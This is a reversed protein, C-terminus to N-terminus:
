GLGLNYYLDQTEPSPEVGLEDELTRMLRAYQRQAAQRQGSKAYAMMLLSHYAENLEDEQLLILLEHIAKEYLKAALYCNVLRVRAENRRLRLAERHPVVWDYDLYELYDGRCCSLARELLSMQEESNEAQSVAAKVLSDFQALDTEVPGDLAYVETGHRIMDPFGCRKLVSRLRYVTTHFKASAKEPDYCDDPWLADIIQDKGIPQGLHALYILLDRARHSRWRVGTIEEDGAFIRVPGMLQLRLVRRCPQPSPEPQTDTLREYAEKAMNRVYREADNRLISLVNIADQGGLEVLIPIIRQKTEPSGQEALPILHRLCRTGVKRLIRQVFGVETGTELGRMLLPYYWHYCTVFNQLDNFRASVTLADETYLHANKIDGKLYYLNAQAQLNYALCKIFGMSRARKEAKKLLDMGKDWSGTRALIHGTITPVSTRILFAQTKAVALAEDAYARAAVWKEQIALTRALFALNLALFSQDSDHERIYEAGQLYLQEAEQVRGLNVLVCALQLYSSPLDETLGMKEKVALARQAVLLAQETEGWDDYIASMVDQFNYGPMIGGPALSIARKFLSLARAPEGLLYTINGLAELIMVLAANDGTGEYEELCQQLVAQSDRFLGAYYLIVSKEIALLLKFRSQSLKSEADFLFRFSEQMAGRGRYIRANLLQCEALGVLDHTKRFLSEAQSAARQAHGLQGRGIEVLAKLLSLQASGRLEEETIAADLWEGVDQWRGHAVAEGGFNILVDTLTTRDGAELLCNVAQSLNGKGIAITGAKKYLSQREHSLKSLLCSRMLPVLHYQGDKKELFQHSVLFRIWDKPVQTGLLQECDDETFHSFVSVRILFEVIERPIGALIEREMYAALVEPLQEQYEFESCQQTLFQVMIPWGDTIAAVRDIQKPELTCSRLNLFEEIEDHSFRLDSRGVVHVEGALHLRELGLQAVLDLPNRGGLILQTHSPLLPVLDSIMQYIFPHNIAHWNDLFMLAGDPLAELVRGSLLPASSRLEVSLIEDPLVELETREGDAASRIAATLHRIFTLPENDRHDLSYWLAPRSSSAALQSMFVTKGYGAPALVLLVKCDAQMFRVALVKREVTKDHLPLKLKATVLPMHKPHRSM